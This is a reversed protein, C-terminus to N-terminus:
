KIIHQIQKDIGLRNITSMILGLHDLVNIGIIEQTNNLKVM